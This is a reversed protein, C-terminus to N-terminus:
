QTIISAVENQVNLFGTYMTDSIEPFKQRIGGVVCRPIVVRRYRRLPFGKNVIVLFTRHALNQKLRNTFDKSLYDQRATDSKITSALTFRGCTLSDDSIVQQLNFDLNTVCQGAVSLLEMIEPRDNCCVAEVANPIVSCNECSCWRPLGRENAEINVEAANDLQKIANSCPDGTSM